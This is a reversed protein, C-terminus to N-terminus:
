PGSRSARSGRPVEADRRDPQQREVRRRELVVAVVDGVVEADVGVVPRQAVDALEDALRVPAPQPDDGLQDAVVGRVLMRPELPRAVGRAAARPAVEVHPAVIGVPVAFRPDDELVELGRVPRPIRDGLLVVPVAEVGVLGVEVELVRLDAVRDHLRHVEPELHADVPQAEVRDRVQVLALARVALVQGLGVREELLQARVDVLAERSRISSASAFWHGSSETSYKPSPSSHWMANWKGTMGRINM